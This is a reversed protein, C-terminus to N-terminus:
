CRGTQFATSSNRPRTRSGRVGMEGFIRGRGPPYWTEWGSRSATSKGTTPDYGTRFVKIALGLLCSIM